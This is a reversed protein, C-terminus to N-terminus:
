NVIDVEGGLGQSMYCTVLRAFTEMSDIVDDPNSYLDTKLYKDLIEQFVAEDYTLLVDMNSTYGFVIRDKSTRIREIDSTIEDMYTEYRETYAM